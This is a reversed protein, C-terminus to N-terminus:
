TSTPILRIHLSLVNVFSSVPQCLEDAGPLPGPAEHRVPLVQLRGTDAGLPVVELAKKKRLKVRQAADIQSSFFIILLRNQDPRVHLLVLSACKLHLFCPQPFPHRPRLKVDHNEAVLAEDNM